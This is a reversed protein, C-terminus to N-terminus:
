FTLKNPPLTNVTALWDDFDDKGHSAPNERDLHWRSPNTAVYERIRNLSEDARIVQDYFSRQWVKAGPTARLANLKKTSQYKFYGIIQSLSPQNQLPPTEGGLQRSPIDPRPSGTGVLFIVGHVLNPMVTFCDLRIAPYQSDLEQWCFHVIRGFESQRMGGDSIHGFLCQKGQTCITIFYARETSYDYEKLRTRKRQEFITVM